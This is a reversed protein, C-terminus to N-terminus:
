VSLVLCEVAFQVTYPFQREGSLWRRITREDVGIRKAVAAQTLGTSDILEALYEPRPDYTSADPRM